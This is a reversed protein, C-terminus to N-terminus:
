TLLDPTVRRTSRRAYDARRRQRHAAGFRVGHGGQRAERVGMSELSKHLPLLASQHRRRSAVIICGIVAAVTAILQQAQVVHPASQDIGCRSYAEELDTRPLHSDAQRLDAVGHLPTFPQYAADNGIHTAALRELGKLSGLRDNGKLKLLYNIKTEDFREATLRFLNKALRLLGRADLAAFRHAQTFLSEVADHDRVLDDGYLAKLRTQLAEVNARLKTEPAISTAWEATIQAAYLEDAVGGDPVVNHAVWIRQQWDPLQAVDKAFVTVLGRGNLGFYVGSHSPLTITATEKSNWHLSAGRYALLTEIVSPRFWLWRMAGKLEAATAVSGDAAIIFPTTPEPRDDGVIFSENAPEIWELRWFRGEIPHLKRGASRGRGTSVATNVDTAARLDPVEDAPDGDTRAIRVVAFTSGVPMGGEHINTVTGKWLTRGLEVLRRGDPWAIHSADEV